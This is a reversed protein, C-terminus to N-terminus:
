ETKAGSTLRGRAGSAESLWSLRPRRLRAADDGLDLARSLKLAEPGILTPTAGGISQYAVAGEPANSTNEVGFFGTEDAGTTGTIEFFYTTGPSLTIAPFDANYVYELFSPPVGTILNGTATQDAGGVNDTAIVTGPGTDTSTLVSITFSPSTGCTGASSGYCGGWWEADNISTVGAPLVFSIYVAAPLASDAFFTGFQNPDGGNYVVTDARAAASPLSLAGAAAFALLLKRM